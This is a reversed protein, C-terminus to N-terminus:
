RIGRRECEAVSMVAARRGSAPGFGGSVLHWRWLRMAQRRSRPSCAVRLPAPGYPFTLVVRYM